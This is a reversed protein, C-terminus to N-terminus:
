LIFDWAVHQAIRLVRIQEKQDVVRDVKAVDVRTVIKYPGGTSIILGAM